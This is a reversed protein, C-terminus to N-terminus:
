HLIDNGGFNQIQKKIVTIMEPPVDTITPVITQEFMAFLGAAAQPIDQRMLNALTHGLDPYVFEFRRSPAINDSLHHNISPVHRNILKVLNQVAHDKVFLHASLKEGRQYRGIGVLLNTLFQGIHYTDTSHSAWRSTAKAIRSMQREIKNRDLLIRYRNSKALSLETKDFVAYELLHGDQYIVKVGHDTEQFAWVIEQQLPLWDYQTRYRLQTGAQVIVFFDHDSWEDPQYDQAAMSGVAVLGLVDARAQLNTVLQQTFQHYADKQM